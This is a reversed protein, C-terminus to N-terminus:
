GLLVTTHALPLIMALAVTGTAAFAGVLIFIVPRLLVVAPLSVILVPGATDKGTGPTGLNLPVLVVLAQCEASLCARSLAGWWPANCGWSCHQCSFM